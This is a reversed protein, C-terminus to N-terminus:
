QGKLKSLLNKTRMRRDGKQIAAELDEIAGPFDGLIYKTEGRLALTRPNLKNTRLVRNLDFLAGKYDRLNFKNIARWEYYSIEDPARKIAEDFYEIATKSAFNELKSCAQGCKAFSKPTPFESVVFDCDRRLAKENKLVANLWMRDYYLQPVEPAIEIAINIDELAGKYDGSNKKYSSRLDYAIPFEKDMAIANDMEAIAASYNRNEAHARASAEIENWGKPPTYSRPNEPTTSCASLAFIWFLYIITKKM